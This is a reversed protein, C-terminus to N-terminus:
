VLYRHVREVQSFNKIIDEARQNFGDWWQTFWCMDEDLKSSYEVQVRSGNGRWEVGVVHCKEPIIWGLLGKSINKVSFHEKTEEREGNNIVWLHPQFIGALSQVMRWLAKVTSGVVGGLCYGACWLSIFVSAKLAHFHGLELWAEFINSLWWRFGNLPHGFLGRLASFPAGLIFDRVCLLCTAWTTQVKPRKIVQEVQSAKRRSDECRSTIPLNKRVAGLGRKLVKVEELEKRLLDMTELRLPAIESDEEQPITGKSVLLEELAHIREELVGESNRISVMTGNMANRLRQSSLAGPNHSRLEEQVKYVDEKWRSIRGSLDEVSAVEVQDITTVNLPPLYQQISEAIARAAFVDRQFLRQTTTLRQYIPSM